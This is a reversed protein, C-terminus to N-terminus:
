IQVVEMVEEDGAFKQGWLDETMPGFLHFDSPAM